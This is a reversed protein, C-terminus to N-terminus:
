THVKEIFILKINSLWDRAQSLALDFGLNHVNFNKVHRRKDITIYAVINGLTNLFINRELNSHSKECIDVEQGSKYVGHKLSYDKVFTQMRQDLLPNYGNDLRRFLGRMGAYPIGVIQATKYQKYGKLFCAYIDNVRSLVNFNSNVMDLLHKDKLAASRKELEEKSRERTKNTIRAKSITDSSPPIGKRLKAVVSRQYETQVHAEPPPSGGIAINWGINRSPRLRNELDVAYATTCECITELVIDDKYKRMARHVHKRKEESVNESFATRCHARYRIKVTESTIGVYGQTTIDTHDKHRIWYVFSM